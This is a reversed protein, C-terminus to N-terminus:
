YFLTCVFLSLIISCVYLVFFLVHVQLINKNAIISSLVSEYTKVYTDSGAFAIFADNNQSRIIKVIKYTNTSGTARTDAAIFSRDGVKIVVATTM